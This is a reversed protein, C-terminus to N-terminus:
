ASIPRLSTQSRHLQSVGDPFQCSDNPLDGSPLNASLYAPSSPGVPDAGPQLARCFKKGQPDCRAVTPWWPPLHLTSAALAVRRCLVTVYRQEDRQGDRGKGNGAGLRVVWGQGLTRHAEQEMWRVGVRGEM